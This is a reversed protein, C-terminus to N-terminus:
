RPVRHQLWFRARTRWFRNAKPARGGVICQPAGRHLFLYHSALISGSECRAQLTSSTLARLLIHAAEFPAAVSSLANARKNLKLCPRNPRERGPNEKVSRREVKHGNRLTGSHRRTRRKHGSLWQSWSSAHGSALRVSPARSLPLGNIRLCVALQSQTVTQGLLIISIYVVFNRNTHFIQCLHRIGKLHFASPQLPSLPLQPSPPTVQPSFSGQSFYFFITKFHKCAGVVESFNIQAKHM